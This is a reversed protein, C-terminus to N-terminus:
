EDEHESMHEMLRVLIEGSLTPARQLWRDIWEVEAMM